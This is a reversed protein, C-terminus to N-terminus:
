RRKRKRPLPVSRLPPYGALRLFRDRGMTPAHHARHYLRDLQQHVWRAPDVRGPPASGTPRQSLPVPRPPITYDIEHPEGGPPLYVVHAGGGADLVWLTNALPGPSWVEGTTDSGNLARYRFPAPTIITTM